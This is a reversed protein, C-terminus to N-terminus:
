LYPSGSPEPLDKGREGGVISFNDLTTPHGTTSHHGHTRTFISQPTKLGTVLHELQNEQTIMM